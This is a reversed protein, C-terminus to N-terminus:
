FHQLRTFQTHLSLIFQHAGVFLDAIILKIVGAFLVGFKWRNNLFQIRWITIESMAASPLEPSLSPLTHHIVWNQCSRIDSVETM